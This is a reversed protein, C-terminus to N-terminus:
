ILNKNHLKLILEYCADIPNDHWESFHDSGYARFRKEPGDSIDLTRISCANLLGTLSWCPTGIGSYLKFPIFEPVYNTIIINNKGFIAKWCMDASDLPLISTLTDSQDLDTHIKM